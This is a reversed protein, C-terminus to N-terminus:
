DSDASDSEHFTKFASYTILASNSYSVSPHLSLKLRFRLFRVENSVSSNLSLKFRFRLLRVENYGQSDSNTILASNSYSVSFHNSLSHRFRFRLFRVEDSVSSNLSLKFRFRLM